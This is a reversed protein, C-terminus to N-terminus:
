GCITPFRRRPAPRASECSTRVPRFAARSPAPVFDSFITTPPSGPRETRVSSRSSATKCTVRAPATASTSRKWGCRRLPTRCSWASSTKMAPRRFRRSFPAATYPNASTTNGNPESEDSEVTCGSSCGDASSTNGDDCAESDDRIGDGCTTTRSLATLTYRGAQGAGTGDVVIFVTAGQVIPLRLRESAGVGAANESCGLETAGDTCSRRVSLNLDANPAALEVDLLGSGKATFQFTVEAGSGATACSPTLQSAHGGTAGEYGITPDALTPATGCSSACAAMCGSDSCDVAGDGDNDRGDFCNETGSCGSTDAVCTSSCRLTGREFGYDTCDTGKLDAGDCQEELNAVGNGCIGSEAGAAGDPSSGAVGGSAAMGDGPAAGGTSGAAGSKGGVQAPRPREDEGSCASTVFHVGLALFGLWVRAPGRGTAPMWREPVPELARRQPASIPAAM